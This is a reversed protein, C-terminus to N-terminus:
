RYSYLPCCFSVPAETYKQVSLGNEGRSTKLSIDTDAFYVGCTYETSVRDTFTAFVGIM